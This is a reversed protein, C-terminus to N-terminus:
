VKISIEGYSLCETKGDDYEVILRCDDDVAKVFAERKNDGMIVIVKKGVVFSRKRYEEVFEDNQLRYYRMFNNIFSASLHNKLDDQTNNFIAGATQEIEEPFGGEPCYVNIGVGVVAYDLVGNELGYSAETLIGCVKKGKIFIDNVWKIEAKEDSVEEIAECLAVAAIMTVKVAESASYNKPRLLISMYLGTGSPSFFKRGYRGRGKTQENSIVVYGEDYGENAKERVLDNTSGIVPIVNIDMNKYEQKIYKQIGQPSLIDTNTSLCYGKNTVADIVYGEDRLNKVAKWVAARSVCLKKAIEEGSFYIGKNEEFLGLLKDKTTM